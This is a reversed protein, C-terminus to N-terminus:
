SRPRTFVFDQTQVGPPLNIAPSGVAPRQTVTQRYRLASAVWDIRRWRTARVRVTLHRAHFGASVRMRGPSCCQKIYYVTYRVRHVGAPVRYRHEAQAYRGGWCDLALAGYGVPYVHCNGRRSRSSTQVGWRAPERTLTVRRRDIRVTRDLTSTGAQNSAKMRVTYRGVPLLKGNANRGGWSVSRHGGRGVRTWTWGRVRRGAANLITLHATSASGYVDFGLRTTDRFGDRVTPYFTAPSAGAGSIRPRDLVRFTVSSSRGTDSQTVTVTNTADQRLAWEGVTVEFSFSTGDHDYYDVWAQDTEIDYWGHPADIGLQVGVTVDGTPVVAGEAPATITIAPDTVAQAVPPTLALVGFVSVLWVVLIPLTRRVSM